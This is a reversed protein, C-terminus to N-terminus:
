YKLGSRRVHVLPPRDALPAGDTVDAIYLWHDGIDVRQAVRCVVYASASQLILGEAVPRTALSALVRAPEEAGDTLRQLLAQEGDACINLVFAGNRELAPVVAREKYISAVLRPPALSVQQVFSLVIAQPGAQADRLTLVFAGSTVRALAHSLQTREPTTM